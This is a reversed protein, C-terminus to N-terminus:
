QPPHEECGIFTPSDFDAIGKVEGNVSEAFEYLEGPIEMPTENKWDYAGAWVVNKQRDVFIIYNVEIDVFTENVLNAEIYEKNKNLIFEYTDDWYAWDMCIKDLEEVERDLANKVLEVKEELVREGIEESLSSVTFVAIAMSVLAMVLITLGMAVVFKWRVSAM